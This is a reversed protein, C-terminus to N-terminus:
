QVVVILKIVGTRQTCKNMQQVLVRFGIESEACATNLIRDTSFIMNM